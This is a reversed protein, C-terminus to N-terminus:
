QTNEAKKPIICDNVMNHLGDIDTPDIKNDILKSYLLTSNIMYNVGYHFKINLMNSLDDADVTNQSLHNADALAKLICVRYLIDDDMDDNVFICSAIADALYCAHKDDTLCSGMFAFINYVTGDSGYVKFYNVPFTFTKNTGDFMQFFDECNDMMQVAVVLENRDNVTAFISDTYYTDYPCLAKCLANVIGPGYETVRGSFIKNMFSSYVEMRNLINSPKTLYKM